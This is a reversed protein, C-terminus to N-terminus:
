LLFLRTDFSVTMKYLMDYQNGDSQKKKQEKTKKKTKLDTSSSPSPQKRIYTKRKKKEASAVDVPPAGCRKKEREPQKRTYTKRKKKETAAVDILPVDGSSEM